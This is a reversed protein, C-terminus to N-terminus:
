PHRVVNFARIISTGAPLRPVGPFSNKARSEKMYEEFSSNAEPSAAVLFMTFEEPYRPKKPLGFFCVLTWFGNAGVVVPGLQPYYSTDALPLVLIWFYQDKKLGTIRGIITQSYDVPIKPQESPSLLTASIGGETPTATTTMATTAPGPPTPNGPVCGALVSASLVAIFLVRMARMRAGTAQIDVM